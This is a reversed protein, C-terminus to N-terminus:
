KGCVFNEADDTSRKGTYMARKPYVCLPRTMVVQGDKDRKSAVMQAHAIGREVWDVIASDWDARDPGPGGACHMVGPLLFFRFYDRVKPDM